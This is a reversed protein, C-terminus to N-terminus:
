TEKNDIVAVDDSAIDELALRLRKLVFLFLNTEKPQISSLSSTDQGFLGCGFLSPEVRRQRVDAYVLGANLIDRRLLTDLPIVGMNKAYLTVLKQAHVCRIAYAHSTWPAGGVYTHKGVRRAHHKPQEIFGLYIIPTLAPVARIAEEVRDKIVEASVNMTIDDEFVLVWNDCSACFTKDAAVKECIGMHSLFCGAEGRRITCNPLSSGDNASVVELAVLGSIADRLAGINGERDTRRELHIVYAAVITCARAATSIGAADEDFFTLADLTYRRQRKENRLLHFTVSISVVMVLLLVSLLICFITLVWVASNSRVMTNNSNSLSAVEEPRKGITTPANINKRNKKKKTKM